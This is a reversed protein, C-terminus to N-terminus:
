LLRGRRCVLHGEPTWLILAESGYEARCIAAAARARRDHEASRQTAPADDRGACATLAVAIAFCGAIWIVATKM